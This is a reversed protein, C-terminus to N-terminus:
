FLPIVGVALAVGAYVMHAVGRSRSGGSFTAGEITGSEGPLRSEGAIRSASNFEGESFSDLSNGIEASHISSESMGLSEEPHISLPGSTSFGAESLTPSLLSITPLTFSNAEPLSPVAGPMTAFGELGAPISAPQPASAPLAPLPQPIPNNPDIPAPAQTPAPAQQPPVPLQNLIDPSFGPPVQQANASAIAVAAVAAVLSLTARTM